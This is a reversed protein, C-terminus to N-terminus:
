LTWASASTSISDLIVLLEQETLLFNKEEVISLIFDLQIQM